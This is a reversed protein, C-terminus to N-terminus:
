HWLICSRHYLHVVPERIEGLQHILPHLHTSHTNDRLPHACINQPVLLTAMYMYMIEGLQHILPDLHTSHTNDRLPHACINQPVLLTAMYMYM